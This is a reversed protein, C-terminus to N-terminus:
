GSSRELARLATLRVTDHCGQETGGVSRGEGRGNGSQAAPTDLLCACQRQRSGAVAGDATATIELRLERRAVVELTTGRRASGISRDAWACAPHTDDRGDRFDTTTRM